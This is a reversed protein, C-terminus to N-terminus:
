TLTRTLLGRCGVSLRKLASEVIRTRQRRFSGPPTRLRAPTIASRRIRGAVAVPQQRASAVTDRLSGRPPRLFRGRRVGDGGGGAGSGVGLGGVGNMVGAGVGIGVGIGVGLGVGMGVGAIVHVRRTPTRLVPAPAPAPPPPPPPAPPATDPCPDPGPDCISDRAARCRSRRRHRPRHRRCCFSSNTSAMAPSERRARIMATATRMRTERVLQPRRCAGRAFASPSRSRARRASSSACRAASSGSTSPSGCRLSRSM